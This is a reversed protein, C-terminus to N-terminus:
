RAEVQLLKEDIAVEEGTVMAKRAQIAVAAARLGEEATCAVPEGETISTLFSETGYGRGDLSHRM